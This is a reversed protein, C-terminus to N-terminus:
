GEYLEFYLDSVEDAQEGLYDPRVINHPLKAEAPFVHTAVKLDNAEAIETPIGTAVDRDIYGDEVSVAVAVRRLKENVPDDRFNQRIRLYQGLGSLTFNLDGVNRDPLIRNGYLVTLPKLLFPPAQSSDPQYFPSLVLLRSVADSRYETLWTALVGGGSLGIVGTEEGLGAAVNLAEDAYEALGDSSVQSAETVDALGHHPERPVYVNYGREYFVDALLAYDKPCSTYGHLMLVSKATKEPHVRLMSRCESLVEANTNDRQVAATGAASAQEFSLSQPEANQLRDSGLPWAYLLGVLLVLIVVVAGVGLGVRRWIRSKPAETAGVVEDTSPM